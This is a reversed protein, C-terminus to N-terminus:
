QLPKSWLELPWHM